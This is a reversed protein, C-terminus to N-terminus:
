VYQSIYGPTRTCQFTVKKWRAALYLREDAHVSISGKEISGRSIIIKSGSDTPYAKEEAWM